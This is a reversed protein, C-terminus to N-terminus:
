ERGRPKFIVFLGWVILIVPWFDWLRLWPIFKQALLVVGVFVLLLGFWLPGRSPAAPPRPPAPPVPNTVVPGAPVPTPGSSTKDAMSVAEELHSPREPIVAWMIIYAITLGGSSLTAVVVTLLRVVTPDLEFYEAIGGCVGAIM